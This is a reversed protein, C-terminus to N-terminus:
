NIKNTPLFRYHLMTMIVVDARRTGRQNWVDLKLNRYGLTEVNFRIIPKTTMGEGLQLHHSITTRAAGDSGLILIKLQM